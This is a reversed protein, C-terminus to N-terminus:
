KIHPYLGLWSLLFLMGISISFYILPHISLKRKLPTDYRKLLRDFGIIHYIRIYDIVFILAMLSAIYLKHISWRDKELLSRLFFYGTLINMNQFFSLVLLSYLAPSAKDNWKKYQYFVRVFMIDFYKMM